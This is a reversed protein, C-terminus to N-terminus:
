ARRKSYLGGLPGIGSVGLTFVTGVLRAWEEAYDKRLDGLWALQCEGIAKPDGCHGLARMLEMDARMRKAVFVSGEVQYAEWFKLQVEAAATAFDLLPNAMRTRAAGGALGSEQM